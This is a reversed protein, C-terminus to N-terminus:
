TNPESMQENRTVWRFAAQVGIQVVTGSPGAYVYKTVGPEPCYVYLFMPHSRAIRDMDRKGYYM